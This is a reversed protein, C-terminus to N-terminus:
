DTREKHKSVELSREELEEYFIYHVVTLLSQVLNSSRNDAM